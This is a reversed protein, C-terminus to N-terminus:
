EGEIEQLLKDRDWLNVNNDKALAIASPQFYNNTIVMAKDLNYHKIGTVAEQVASNSVKDNYCKTQIGIKIFSNEIIVDIGFDGSLPTQSVKFGKRQFLTAIFSEFEKGNMCDIKEILTLNNKCFGSYSPLDINIEEHGEDFYFNESKAQSLRSRAEEIEIKTKDYLPFLPTFIDHTYAYYFTYLAHLNSFIHAQFYSHEWENNRFIDDLTEYTFESKYLEYYYKVIGNRIIFYVCSRLTDKDEWERAEFIRKLLGNILSRTKEEKPLWGIDKEQPFGDKKIFLKVIDNENNEYLLYFENDGKGCFNWFIEWHKTYRTEVYKKIAPYYKETLQLIYPLSSKVKQINEKKLSFSDMKHAEKDETLFLQRNTKTTEDTAQTNKEKKLEKIGQYIGVIFIIGIAGFIFILPFYGVSCAIVFLVIDAVFLFIVLIAGGCGVNTGGHHSGQIKRWAGRGGRIFRPM